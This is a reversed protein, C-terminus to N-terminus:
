KWRASELLRISVFLLYATVSLHLLAPRLDIRGESFDAIHQTVSLFDALHRPHGPVQALLWGALMVLWVVALTSIAATLQSRSTISFLLGLAQFTATALVLIACGGLVAGPEIDAATVGPSLRDLLRLDAVAPLAVLLVFTLGGAFKGLVLQQETVPATMLLEITGARKEEAFLRMSVVTLLAPLWLFLSEFLTRSLSVQTGAGQLVGLLFTGSAAALFMVATVYAVPSFFYSALERRWITLFIRV